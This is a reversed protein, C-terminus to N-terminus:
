ISVGLMAYAQTTQKCTMVWGVVQRAVIWSAVFIAVTVAFVFSIIVFVAVFLSILLRIAILANADLQTLIQQTEM